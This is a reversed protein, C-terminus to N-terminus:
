RHFEDSCERGRQRTYAGANIYTHDSRVITGDEILEDKKEGTGIANGVPLRRTRPSKVEGGEGRVYSCM